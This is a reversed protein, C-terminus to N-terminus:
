STSALIVSPETNPCTEIGLVEHYIEVIRAAKAEWTYQERVMACARRGMRRCRDVNGVLEDMASRLNRVLEDAPTVPLAIGCEPTVLEAPGGHDVVIAPLGRAFAELVVGGGFERLSPFVFAQSAGLERALEQQGLWGRFYVRETLRFDRCLSELHEREPGDGVLHLECRRLMESDRMAELIFAMGKYPVMRGVTVFRFAGRPEPWADALPFRDPDIGNEPLYFRKGAFYDPIESATHRSGAIVAAAHRYTSRYYPLRTYLRRLPVLWERERRRLEPFEKPWPLGGNLPGLIMPAPGRSAMPSGLTPSVPTIRHVLDFRKERLEDRLRKYALREFFVYAPWAMAMNTTWSLSKGGRLLKAIRYLPGAVLENNVYEIRALSSLADRELAPQNRVHTLVTVDLDDREALARAQNYGVLPVSTWTPNCAEVLLLVSLREAAIEGM